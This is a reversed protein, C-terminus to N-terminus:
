AEIGFFQSLLDIALLREGLEVATENESNRDAIKRLHSILEAKELQTM